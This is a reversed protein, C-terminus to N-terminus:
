SARESLPLANKKESGSPRAVVWGM